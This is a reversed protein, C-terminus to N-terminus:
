DYMFRPADVHDGGNTTADDGLANMASSGEEIEESDDEEDGGADEKGFEDGELGEELGDNYDDYNALPPSDIDVSAENLMDVYSEPASDVVPIEKVVKHAVASSTSPAKAMAAMLAILSMMKAAALKKAAPKKPASKKQPPPKNAPRKVRKTPAPPAADVPAADLVHQGLRKRKNNPLVAQQPTDVV